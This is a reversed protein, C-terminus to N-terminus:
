RSLFSTLLLSPPFTYIGTSMYCVIASVNNEYNWRRRIAVKFNGVCKGTEEDTLFRLKESWQEIFGHVLMKRRSVNSGIIIEILGSVGSSRLAAHFTRCSLTTSSPM